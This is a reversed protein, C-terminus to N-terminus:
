ACWCGMRNGHRNQRGGDKQHLQVYSEQWLKDSALLSGMSICAVERNGLMPSRGALIQSAMISKPRTRAWVVSILMTVEMSSSQFERVLLITNVLAGNVLSFTRVRRLEDDAQSEEVDIGSGSAVQPESICSDLVWDAWMPLGVTVNPMGETTMQQSIKGSVASADQSLVVGMIQDLPPCIQVDVKVDVVAYGFDSVWGAINSVLPLSPSRRFDVCLEGLVVVAMRVVEVDPALRSPECGEFVLGPGVGGLKFCLSLGSSLM